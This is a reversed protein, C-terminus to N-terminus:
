LVTIRTVIGSHRYSWLETTLGPYDVSKLNLIIQGYRGRVQRTSEIIFKGNYEPVTSDVQITVDGTSTQLTKFQEKLAIARSIDVEYFKRLQKVSDLGHKVGDSTTMNVINHSEATGTSVLSGDALSELDVIRSGNKGRGVRTKLVKYSGNKDQSDEGFEVSLRSGPVLGNIINRVENKDM